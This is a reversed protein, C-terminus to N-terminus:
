YIYNGDQSFTLGAFFQVTSPLVQVDSRTAVNRVWLSQGSKDALAYVIYRGDPSIAVLGAKGSDTLRTIQMNQLNFPRPRNLFKYGLLALGALVVVAVPLAIRALNKRAAPPLVASASSPVPIRASSSPEVSPASTPPVAIGTRGSS